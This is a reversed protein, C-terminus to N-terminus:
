MFQVQRCQTITSPNNKQKGDRSRPRKGCQHCSSQGASTGDDSTICQKCFWHGCSNFVPDKLVDQCSACSSLEEEVCVDRRKEPPEPEISFTPPLGKSKM